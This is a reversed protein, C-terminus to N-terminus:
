WKEKRLEYILDIAQEVDELPDNANYLCGGNEYIVKTEKVENLFMQMQKLSPFSYLRGNETVKTKFPSKELDKYYGLNRM